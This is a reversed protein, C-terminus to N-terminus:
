SIRGAAAADKRKSESPPQLAAPVQVIQSWCLDGPQGLSLRCSVVTFQKQTRLPTHGRAGFAGMQSSPQSDRDARILSSAQRAWSGPSLHQSPILVGALFPVFSM